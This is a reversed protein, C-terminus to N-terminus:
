DKDSSSNLEVSIGDSGNIWADLVSTVWTLAFAGLLLNGRVRHENAVELRPVTEATNNSYDSYAMQGLAMSTVAAGLTGLGVVSLVSGKVPAQNYFQGWGPILASRFVAGSSSRIVVSDSSLAIMSAKDVKARASSVTKASAVDVLRATVVYSPGASTVSGLVVSEAGLMKGMEAVTAEDLVGMQALVNERMLRDIGAREVVLFPDIQALEVQMLEGVLRGLHQEKAMADSEEFHPIAIRHFKDKNGSARFGRALGRALEAVADSVTRATLGGVSSETDVSPKPVPWIKSAVRLEVGVKMVGSEIHVIKLAVLDEAGVRAVSGRLRYRRKSVGRPETTVELKQKRMQASLADSLITIVQDQEGPQGIWDLAEIGLGGSKRLDDLLASESLLATVLAVSVGEVGTLDQGAGSIVKVRVETSKTTPVVPTLELESPANSDWSCGVKLPRQGITGRRGDVQVVFRRTQVKLVKVRTGVPLLRKNANSQGSPAFGIIKTTVCSDGPKTAQAIGGVFLLVLSLTTRFFVDSIKMVTM